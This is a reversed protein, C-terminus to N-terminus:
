WFGFNLMESRYLFLGCSYYEPFTNTYGSCCRSCLRFSFCRCDEIIDQIIPCQVMCNLLYFICKCWKMLWPKIVGKLKWLCCITIKLKNIKLWHCTKMRRNRSNKVDEIAVLPSFCFLYIRPHDSITKL